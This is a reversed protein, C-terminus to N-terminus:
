GAEGRFMKELADQVDRNVGVGVNLRDPANFGAMKVLQSIADTKSPMKVRIRRNGKKSKTESYEQALSSQPDVEGVPTEIIDLLKKAITDRTVGYKHELTEAFKTRIESIRDRVPQKLMLNTSKDRVKRRPLNGDGYVETWADAASSGNAVLQCFEEEKPDLAMTVM